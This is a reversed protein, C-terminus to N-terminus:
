VAMTRHVACQLQELVVRGPAVVQLEVLVEVTVVAGTQAGGVLGAPGPEDDVQDEVGWAFRLADDAPLLRHAPRCSRRRSSPSLRRAVAPGRRRSSSTSSSM